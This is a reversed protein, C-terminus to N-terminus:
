SLLRVMTLVTWDPQHALMEGDIPKKAVKPTVVRLRVGGRGTPFM